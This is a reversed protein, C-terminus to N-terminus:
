EFSPYQLATVIGTFNAALQFQKGNAPQYYASFFSIIYGRLLIRM